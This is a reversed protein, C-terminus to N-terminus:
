SGSSATATAFKKRAVMLGLAGLCIVAVPFIIWNLM